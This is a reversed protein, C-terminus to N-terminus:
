LIHLQDPQERIYRLEAVFDPMALRRMPIFLSVITERRKQIYVIMHRYFSVHCVYVFITLTM